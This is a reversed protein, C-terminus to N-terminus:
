EIKVKYFPIPLRFWVNVKEGNHSAPIFNSIKKTAEIAAKDLQSNISQDVNTNIVKGYKDIELKLVVFLPIKSDPANQIYSLNSTIDEYLSIAGKSYTAPTDVDENYNTSFTSIYKSYSHNEKMPDEYDDEDDFIIEGKGLVKQTGNMYTLIVKTISMNSADGAVYYSSSDWNWSASYNQKLPGTGKFHGTGRIDGVDNTVKWYVDIYKITKTNTNMYRFSFSVSFDDDWSWNEFYGYPAKKNVRKYHQLQEYNNIYEIFDKNFISDNCLSDKFAQLHYQFCPNTKLVKPIQTVHIESFSDDLEMTKETVFYISDNQVSNILVWEYSYAKNCDACILKENNIPFLSKLNEQRFTNFREEKKIQALRAEEAKKEQERVARISDAIEKERIRKREAIISDNLASYKKELVANASAILPAIEENDFKPIESNHKVLKAYDNNLTIVYNGNATCVYLNHSKKNYAYISVTNQVSEVMVDKQPAYLGNADKQYLVLAKRIFSNENTYQAQGTYCVLCLALTLLLRITKM